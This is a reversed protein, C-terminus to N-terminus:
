SRRELMYEPHQQITELWARMDQMWSQLEAKSVGLAEAAALAASAAGATVIQETLASRIM